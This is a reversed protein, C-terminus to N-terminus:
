PSIFGFDIRLFILSLDNAALTSRALGFHSSPPTCIVIGDVEPDRILSEPEAHYRVGYQAALKRGAVTSRRCLATVTMGPVDKLAHRVYRQGHTGAGLVGVRFSM